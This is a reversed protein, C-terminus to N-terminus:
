ELALIFRWHAAAVESVSLRNGPRLLALGKLGRAAHARLEALTITRKLARALRVDVMFWRPQRPDSGPDYHADRRDFASPDPYAERVVEMVAVIGPVECSSHYLFAQEGRRMERLLNRAQYNRVGDWGTTRRPAKRLQELGFSTPESKMLWYRM